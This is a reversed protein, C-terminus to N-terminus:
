RRSIEAGVAEAAQEILPTLLDEGDSKARSKNTQTLLPKSSGPVQLQYDLQMVDKAHTSTAFDTATQIVGNVIAGQVADGAPIYGGYGGFNGLVKGLAAGDSGRRHVVSAALTYDCEARQAEIAYQSPIRASLLAVQITPGNLYEAFMNRVGEAAQAAENTGMQVRPLVLGIRIVGPPKAPLAGDQAFARSQPHLVLAGILVWSSFLRCMVKM